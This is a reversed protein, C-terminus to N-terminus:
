RAPAECTRLHLLADARRRARHGAPAAASLGLARRAAACRESLDGAARSAVAGPGDLEARCLLAQARGTRLVPAAGPVGAALAQGLCAKARPAHLRACAPDAAPCPPVVPEAAVSGPAANRWRALQALLPDALGAVLLLAPLPAAAARV